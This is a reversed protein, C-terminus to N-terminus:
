RSSSTSARRAAPSRAASDFRRTATDYTGRLLTEESGTMSAMTGTPRRGCRAVTRSAPPRMAIAAGTVPPVRQTVSIHLNASM